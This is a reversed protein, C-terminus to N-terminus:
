RDSVVGHVGVQLLYARPVEFPVRIQVDTLGRGTLHHVVGLAGLTLVGEPLAGEREPPVVIPDDDDVVVLPLGARRRGIALSELCQHGLHAHTVGPQHDSQFDGAQGTIRAVPVPQQLDAREGVGQDEIFVAEVIGRM